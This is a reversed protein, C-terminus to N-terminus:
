EASVSSIISFVEFFTTLNQTFEDEYYDLVKGIPDAVAGNSMEIILPTNGTPRARIDNKSVWEGGLSKVIVEGAYCGLSYLNKAVVIEDIDNIRMQEILVDILGLSEPSYDLGLFLNKNLNDVISVALFKAHQPMLNFPFPNYM